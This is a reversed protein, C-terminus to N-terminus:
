KLKRQLQNIHDEWKLKEDCIFHQNAYMYDYIADLILQAKEYAETESTGSVFIKTDNAYLVFKGINSSMVIDNLYILFLLPGLVSGQPISYEINSEDSNESQFKTTQVRGSIYSKILKLSVGRIGYFHMRYILKEHSITDFAKSLDIFKGIVHRKKEIQDIIQKFSPSVM